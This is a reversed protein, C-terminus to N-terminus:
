VGPPTPPCPVLQVACRTQAGGRSGWGPPTGIVSHAHPRLMRARADFLCVSTRPVCGPRSPTKRGTVSRHFFVVVQLLCCRRAGQAHWLSLVLCHRGSHPAQQNSRRIAADTVAQTPGPLSVCGPVSCPGPLCPLMAQSPLPLKLHLAHDSATAGHWRRATLCACIQAHVGLLDGV